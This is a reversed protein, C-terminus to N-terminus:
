GQDIWHVLSLLARIERTYNVEGDIHRRHIQRAEDVRILGVFEELRQLHKSCYDAKGHRFWDGVPVTFMQKKRYALEEGIMGAVAKKYLYKTEGNKLKLEGPMRFAFEMMRYDLFPTRAELSVAMGMRDPKVLNNGSLLLQMDLFLAQNIRDQHPVAEFWPKAVEFSDYKEAVDHMGNGYIRRKGSEDFLSISDFYRRRFAEDSLSSIDPQAFFSKYKDYGAFLEDGGDGTLVVKVDRVALESVRYTPLFSIDGHPQDCHYTAMPWLDLMDADVREMTHLTGFRDAAAQAFSSEDYLPDHFGICFTKVPENMHRAM